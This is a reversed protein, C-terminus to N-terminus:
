LKGAAAKEVARILYSETEPGHVSTECEYGGALFAKKTPLYGVYGNTYGFLFAQKDPKFINKIAMGIECFLEGPVTIIVTKGIVMLVSEGQVIQGNKCLHAVNGLLAKTYVLKLQSDTDEQGAKELSEKESVLSQLSPLNNRSPLELTVYIFSIQGEVEIPNNIVRKIGEFIFGAMKEANKFSRLEGMNAGFASADASYGINLDGCAGNFFMATVGPFQKEAEQYIYGPYDASILYNSSDLITCHCAYNVIIGTIKGESNKAWLIGLENDVATEGARRNKAVEPVSTFGNYLISPEARKKANVMALAVKEDFESMALPDFMNEEWAFQPSGTPGSHTHTAGFIINATGCSEMARKKINEVQANTIGLLDCSILFVETKGDNIYCAKVFLPDHIGESKKTRAAFGSQWVPIVPTSNETAWGINMM